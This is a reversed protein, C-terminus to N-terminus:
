DNLKTWSQLGMSQLLDPKGLYMACKSTRKSHSLHQLIVPVIIFMLLKLSFCLFYTFLSLNYETNVQSASQFCYSPRLISTGLSFLEAGYM